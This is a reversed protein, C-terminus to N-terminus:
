HLLLCVRKNRKISSSLACKNKSPLMNLVFKTYCCSCQVMKVFIHLISCRLYLDIEWGYNFYTKLFHINMYRIDPYIDSLWARNCKELPDSFYKSELKFHALYIHQMNYWRKTPMFFIKDRNDPKLKNVVSSAPTTTLVNTKKFETNINSSCM